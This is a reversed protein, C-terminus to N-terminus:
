TPRPAKWKEMLPYALRSLQSMPQHALLDIKM